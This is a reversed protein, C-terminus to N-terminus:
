QREWGVPSGLCSLSIPCSGAEAKAEPPLLDGGKGRPGALRRRQDLQHVTRGEWSGLLLKM